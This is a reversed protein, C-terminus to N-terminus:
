PVFSLTQKQEKEQPYILICNMKQRVNLPVPNMYHGKKHNYEDPISYDVVLNPKDSMLYSLLVQFIVM